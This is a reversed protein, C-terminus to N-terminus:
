CHAVLRLSLQYAMPDDHRGCMFYITAITILENSLTGVFDLIGFRIVLLEDESSLKRILGTTHSPNCVTAVGLSPQSNRM